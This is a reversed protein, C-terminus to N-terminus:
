GTTREGRRWVHWDGYTVQEVYHRQLYHQARAVDLGWSALSTGSVVMWRPAQPGAMVRRLARLRHDRVKVPLSWLEPYPSHLGSGIVIDPCGFAVVVGDGPRAHARLYTEVLADQSAVVPTTLLVGWAVVAAVVAYGIMARLLRRGRLGPRAVAVLLVLGPVMGTLYHLWYSGGGLVGVVEWAVFALAPVALVSRRRDRLVAAAAVMLVLAAGSAVLALGLHSLRLPTSATASSAVVRAAHLRFMVVADWLGPAPTGRAAAAAVAAALVALAGTTFGVLRAATGPMRHRTVFLAAAALVFVDIANQKVLAASTATAGAGAALLVARRGKSHLLSQVLLCAGALVFPVALVEGDAEPMGLLPSCLLAAALTAVMARRCVGDTAVVDALRGALLVSVGGAVAGLLKVGSDLPGLASTTFPVLHAVLAYIGILLPPRDVWYNGYLSTGHGWQQGLLLFGSEDNTLPRDLFPLWAGVCVAAALLVPWHDALVRRGTAVKRSM